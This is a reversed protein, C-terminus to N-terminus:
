LQSVEGLLIAHADYDESMGEEGIPVVAVGVEQAADCAFEDFEAMVHADEFGAIAPAERIEDIILASSREGTEGV